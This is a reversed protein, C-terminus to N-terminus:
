WSGGGGGGFGGGVSGGGSSGSSQPASAAAFDSTLSSLEDAFAVPSFVHMCTGTYWAPKGLHMDKFQEAWAKEVGFAVAYPLYESFQQPEREPANHFALRDKEAVSLYRRFGRAYDRVRVGERTKVPMVVGFVAVIVGSLAFAAVMLAIVDWLFIASLLGFVVLAIGAGIYWARVRDPRALFFRRVVVEDYIRSEIEKKETVFKHRMKSLLTGHKMESNVEAEGQFTPTFLKEYVLSAIPEVPKNVGKCKEFLYDTTPIVFFVTTEIHHIRIYGEVALRVVEASLERSQFHEDFLLGAVSPPLGEPPSFETIVTPVGKPDRGRTYWLYFIVVFVGIPVALPAFYVAKGEINERLTPEEIIGKPFAVAVSLGENPALGLGRTLYLSEGNAGLARSTRDCFGGEGQYGQYCSAQLVEAGNPLVVMATVTGMAVPWDGTVNWYLEDYDDFYLFPGDVTYGIVYTHQGTITEDPDGIKLTLEGNGRSEAFPYPTGALDNVLVGSIDAIYTGDGSQYSYPITRFIGHRKTEGFDYTVTEVVDLKADERITVVAEFSPLAEASVWLPTSALLLLSFFATRLM